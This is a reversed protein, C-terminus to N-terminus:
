LAEKIVRTLEWVANVLALLAFFIMSTQSDPEARECMWAVYMLM